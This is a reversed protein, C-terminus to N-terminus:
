RWDGKSKRSAILTECGNYFRFRDDRGRAANFVLPELTFSLHPAADGVHAKENGLTFPGKSGNFKGEPHQTCGTLGFKQQLRAIYYVTFERQAPGLLRIQHPSHWCLVENWIAFAERRSQVDEGSRDNM